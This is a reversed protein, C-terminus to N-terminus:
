RAVKGDTSRRGRKNDGLTQSLLARLMKAQVPKQLVHVDETRVQAAEAAGADASILIAPSRGAHRLREIADIGTTGGSLHYDCVILDPARRRQALEALAARDSSAAVVAYGWRCLLAKMANLVLPDDDVIVILKANLGAPLSPMRQHDGSVAFIPHDRPQTFDDM